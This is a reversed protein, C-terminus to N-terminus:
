EYLINISGTTFSTSGTTSIRIRDLTSVVTKTGAGMHMGQVTGDTASSSYTWINSGVLNTIIATASGSSTSVGNLVFEAVSSNQDNSTLGFRNGTSKYGTNEIGSSTGLQIRLISSGYALGSMIVTIRKVWSPIATFDFATGSTTAVATGSAIGNYIAGSPTTVGSTGDIVTTM